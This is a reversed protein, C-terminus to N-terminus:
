SGTSWQSRKITIFSPIGPPGNIVNLSKDWSWNRNPPNYITGTGPWYGTAKKSGWLQILSGNFNFNKGSWNELFRFYNEVGGSYHSNGNSDNGSAVIGNMFVCNITTAEATRNSITKNSNADQWGKTGDPSNSLITVADGAILALTKGDTNYNGKVYVPNESAVSFGQSCADPLDAGNILRVAGLTSSNNTKGNSVYVVGNTPSVGSENLNAINIDLTSVTKNERQDTFSNPQAIYKTPHTADGEGPVPTSDVMHYKNDVTVGNQDKINIGDLSNSSDSYVKLGAQNEFKTQEVAYSDDNNAREILVHPDSDSPIPAAIKSIGLASDAVYKNWKTKAQSAWDSDRHDLWGDGDNRKMSSQGSGHFFSVDHTNDNAQGSGPFRGHFIGGAASVRKKFNLSAGTQVYLDNNSHVRGDVVMDAGPAIELIPDYFIAYSFIPVYNIDFTQSLSVGPHAFRNGTNNNKRATVNIRYHLSHTPTGYPDDTDETGILTSKFVPFQIGEINPPTMAAVDADYNPTRNFVLFSFHAYAKNLAEEAAAFEDKYIEYHMRETTQTNAIKLIVYTMAILVFSIILTTILTVAGRWRGRRKKSKCTRWRTFFGKRLVFINKM